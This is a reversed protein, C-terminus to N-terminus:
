GNYVNEVSIHTFTINANANDSQISVNYTSGNFLAPINTASVANSWFGQATGTSSCDWKGYFTLTTPLRRTVMMTIEVPQNTLNQPLNPLVWTFMTGLSSKFRMTYATNGAGRTSVAYLKWVRTFGVSGDSWTYSGVDPSGTLNVETILGNVQVQLSSQIVQLNSMTRSDSGGNAKLFESSLGGNKIFGVASVIGSNNIAQAGMNLPVGAQIVTNSILLRTIPVFASDTISFAEAGNLKFQIDKTFTTLVASGTMNTTKTQLPTILLDVYDKRTADGDDIQTGLLQIRQNQMFLPNNIQVSTNSVSLKSVSVPAADNRITFFDGNAVRLVFTSNDLFDTGNVAGVFNQTATQLNVVNTNTTNLSAQTAYVTGDSDGNAKLFQTTLGGSKIISTGTISGASTINQNGMNLAGTMSVTGNAKLYTSNDKTGNAKLFESSLGGTTAYSLANSVAQNNMILPKYVYANANDFTAIPTTNFTNTIFLGDSVGLRFSTNQTITNNSLTSTLNQTKGELTTIRGDTEISNTFFSLLINHGNGFSTTGTGNSTTMSVPISIQAQNVIVPSGTINYTINNDSNSQDQIYVDNLASLNRFFVEIDINDRTKHSIYIQTASKQELTNYTIIGSPPTPDQDVGNDYLYFNSNGSNQSYQLSSGDAMLYQQATGGNKIFSAANMSGANTVSYENANLEATMPNTVFGGGSGIPLGNVLVSDASLNISDQGLSINATADLAAVANTNVGNSFTSNTDYGYISTM